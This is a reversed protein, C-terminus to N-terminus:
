TEHKVCAFLKRLPLSRNKDANAERSTLRTLVSKLSFESSTSKESNFALTLFIYSAGSPFIKNNSSPGSPLIMFIEFLMPKRLCGIAIKVEAATAVIQM